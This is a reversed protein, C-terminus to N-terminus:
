CRAISGAPPWVPLWWWRSSVSGRRRRPGFCCAAVSAPARGLGFRDVRRGARALRQPEQDLDSLRLVVFIVPAAMDLATWRSGPADRRVLNLFGVALALVLPGVIFGALSNALGFTSFVENSGVLRNRLLEEARAGPAIGMEQM